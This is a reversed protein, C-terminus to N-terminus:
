GVAWSDKLGDKGLPDKWKIGLGHEATFAVSASSRQTEKNMAAIITVPFELGKAAHATMVQVCDGQDADSLDSETNIAGEVSELERLFDLLPRQSGKSRALHLFAEINAGDPSGPPWHLGCDSLARVILVDLPVTQRSARWLRLNRNFREIRNADDPALGPVPMKLGSTLSSAALRLRLLAEDSLGVLSSRLVTGLAVSDRPNAITHLLAAIDRGERSLLFSQRRGCVYPIRVRDFEELIPTMSEGNRCLVAFDGFREMGPEGRLLLIRHAIWKAERVAAEDKDPDQACLVEISSGAKDEFLARPM